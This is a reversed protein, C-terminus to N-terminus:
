TGCTMLGVQEVLVKYVFQPDAAVRAEWGPWSFQGKHNRGDSDGGGGTGTIKSNTMPLSVGAKLDGEITPLDSFLSVAEAKQMALNQSVPARPGNKVQMESLDMSWM